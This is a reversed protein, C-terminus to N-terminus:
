VKFTVGAIAAPTVVLSQSIDSMTATSSSQSANFSTAHVRVDEARRDLSTLLLQFFTSTAGIKSALGTSTRRERHRLSSLMLREAERNPRYFRYDIGWM